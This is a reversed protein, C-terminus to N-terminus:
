LVDSTAGPADTLVQTYRSHAFEHKICVSIHIHTQEYTHVRTHISIHKRAHTRQLSNIAFPNSSAELFQKQLPETYLQTRYAIETSPWMITQHQLKQQAGNVRTM